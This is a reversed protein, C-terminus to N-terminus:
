VCTYNHRYVGGDAIGVLHTKTDDSAKDVVTTTFVESTQKCKICMEFMQIEERLKKLDAQSLCYEAFVESNDEELISNDACFLERSLPLGFFVPKNGGMVRNISETSKVFERLALQPLGDVNEYIRVENKSQMMAYKLVTHVKYDFFKSIHVSRGNDVFYNKTMERLTKGPISFLVIHLHPKKSADFMSPRKIEDTMFDFADTKVFEKKGRYGYHMEGFELDNESVGIVCIASFNNDTCWKKLQKRYAQAADWADDYTPCETVTIFNIKAQRESM